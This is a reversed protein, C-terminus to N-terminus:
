AGFVREQPQDAEFLLARLAAHSLRLSIAIIEVDVDWDPGPLPRRVMALRELTSPSCTLYEALQATTQEHRELWLWLASALRDRRGHMAAILYTAAEMQLERRSYQTGDQYCM